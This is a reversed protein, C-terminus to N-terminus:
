GTSLENGGTAGLFKLASEISGSVSPFREFKKAEITIAMLDRNVQQIKTVESLEISTKIVVNVLITEGSKLPGVERTVRKQAFSYYVIFSKDSPIKLKYNGNEDSIAAKLKDSTFISVGGM